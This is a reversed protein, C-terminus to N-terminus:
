DVADGADHAAEGSDDGQENSAFSAVSLTDVQRFLFDARLQQMQEQVKQDVMDQFFKSFAPSQFLQIQQKAESDINMGTGTDEDVFSALSALSPALQRAPVWLPHNGYATGVKCRAEALLESEKVECGLDVLSKLESWKREATALHAATQEIGHQCKNLREKCSVDIDMRKALDAEVEDRPVNLTDGM